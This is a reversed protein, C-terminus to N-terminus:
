RKEYNKAQEDDAGEEARRDDRKKPFYLQADASWAIGIWERPDSASKRFEDLNPIIRHLSDRLV